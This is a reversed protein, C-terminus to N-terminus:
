IAGLLWLTLLCGCAGVVAGFSTAMLLFLCGLAQTTESNSKTM